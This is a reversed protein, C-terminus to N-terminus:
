FVGLIVSLFVIIDTFIDGTRLSSGFALRLRAKIDKKYNIIDRLLRKNGSNINDKYYRLMLRAEDARSFTNGKFFASIYYKLRSIVSHRDGISNESHQRYFIHPKPDFCISCETFAAVRYIWTDHMSIGKPSSKAILELMQRNIVITCGVACNKAMAAGPTFRPSFGTNYMPNLREDTVIQNSFYMAPGTNDMILRGATALKDSFWFDDQDCFAYIDADYEKEARYILDFFSAAAGINEGRYYKAGSKELIKVTGDKSGDDRALVTIECDEQSFISNLQTKLYKEGNYCSLMVLAKM